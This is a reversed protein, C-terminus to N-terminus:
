RAGQFKFKVAFEEETSTRGVDRIHIIQVDSFLGNQKIRDQVEIVSAEDVARGVLSGEANETLALSTTWVTPAEPFALTLQRLCELFEPKQSTWSRAYAMRDVIARAAEIDDSMMELQETYTAIDSRTGQWDAIVAGVVLVCVAAAFAAWGVVRKRSTEEKRGIRPNVFDVSPKATGVGAMAVAAAAMSQAQDSGDASGLGAAMLEARGDQVTIQPALQENLREVVGESTSCADYFTVHYPGSQDQQPLLLMLRQITATLRQAREDATGNTGLLPVHQLTGPRGAAQSWFECYHPRAYLGYRQGSGTRSTAQEFALASVTVAQVRLGASTVMERVQDIIQRRAALLMIKSSQSASPRGCYDFVLESANLSFAREAQISLVGALADANAPPAVIEKAVIWKTPIGVVAHKASFHSAHLFQKLQQGLERANDANLTDTFAWQGVRRVEPRGTRVAVEAVMVGFEDVALGLLTRTGLM